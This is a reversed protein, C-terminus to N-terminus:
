TPSLEDVEYLMICKYSVMKKIICIPRRSYMHIHKTCLDNTYYYTTFYCVLWCYNKMFRM